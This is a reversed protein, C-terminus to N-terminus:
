YRRRLSEKDCDVVSTMHIFHQLVPRLVIHAADDDSVPLTNKAKTVKTSLTSKDDIICM